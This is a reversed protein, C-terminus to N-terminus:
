IKLNLTVNIINVKRKTSLVAIVILLNSVITVVTILSM